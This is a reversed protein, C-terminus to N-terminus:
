ANRIRGRELLLECRQARETYMYSKTKINCINFDMLVFLVFIYMLQVNDYSPITVNEEKGQLTRPARVGRGGWGVGVELRSAELWRLPASVLRDAPRSISNSCATLM